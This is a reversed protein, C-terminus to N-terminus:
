LSSHVMRNMEDLFSYFQKRNIILHFYTAIVAGYSLFTIVLFLWEDSGDRFHLVIWISAISMWVILTISLIIRVIYDRWGGQSDLGIMEPIFRYKGFVIMKFWKLNEKPSQLSKGFWTQNSPSWRNSQRVCCSLEANGSQNLKKKYKKREWPRTSIIGCM